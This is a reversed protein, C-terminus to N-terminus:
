RLWSSPEHLGQRAGGAPRSPRFIRTDTFIDAPSLVVGLQVLFCHPSVRLPYFPEMRNLEDATLFTECLPSVGLDVFVYDAKQGCFRCTMGQLPAANTVKMIAESEAVRETDSVM